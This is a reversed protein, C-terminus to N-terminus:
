YTLRKSRHIVKGHRTWIAGDQGGTQDNDSDQKRYQEKAKATTQEAKRRHKKM